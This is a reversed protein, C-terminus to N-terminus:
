VNFVGIRNYLLTIKSKNEAYKEYKVTNRNRHGIHYHDGYLCKYYTVYVKKCKLSFCRYFAMFLNYRNKGCCSTSRFKRLKKNIKRLVM